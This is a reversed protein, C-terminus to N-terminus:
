PSGHIYSILPLFPFLSDCPNFIENTDKTVTWKKWSQANSSTKDWLKRNWNIAFASEPFVLPFEQAIIQLLKTPFLNNMWLVGYWVKPCPNFTASYALTNWITLNNWIALISASSSPKTSTILFLCLAFQHLYKMRSQLCLSLLNLRHTWNESGQEEEHFGQPNLSVTAVGDEWQRQEQKAQM